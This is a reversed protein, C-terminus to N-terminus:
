MRSLLVIDYPTNLTVQGSEVVVDLESYSDILQTGEDFIGEVKITKEGESAGLAIVIKDEFENQQYSRAFTYPQEAIMQHKGAGVAPHEKRFTGLKAWHSLVMQVSDSNEIEDWNMFSRLTADGNAGEIMLSRDSEDGYYIQVAGQSLLLKNAAEKSRERKPDFPAGDDHSSLYNLINYDALKGGHLLNDYKTFISDYSGEADQKFDFNILSEFGHSYFNVSTDGYDYAPGQAASFNYVEGVMWFPANDLAEESNSAKWEELAALAQKKLEDWLDAETHKATDVRFGDIGLERVYDTLWKIIYYKPARPYHTREFFADLEEMEEEYRGEAKWKEVLTPPLDVAEESETYIDPLNEVLTCEVTSAYGEYTCAPAQRVWNDPWATDLETVPGTHNIVVDLLVRIGHEHATTVLQELEEFTGFNPDLRTWDKAWYGHYAYTLGTGEDTAGHIQEIVPTFWIANVGLRDFYGDEIKQTIGAIDGGEFGRLRATEETRNFSIDNAVNGNYFRDTLLFYITANRWDFPVAESNKLMETSEPSTCRFLLACFSFLFLYINKM